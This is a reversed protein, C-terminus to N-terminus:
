ELSHPEEEEEQAMEKGAEEEQSVLIEWLDGEQQLIEEKYIEEKGEKHEEKGGKGEKWEKEEEKEQLDKKLLNNEVQIGEKRKM